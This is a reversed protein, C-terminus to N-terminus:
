KCDIEEQFQKPVSIEQLRKLVKCMDRQLALREEIADVRKPLEKLDKAEAYIGALWFLASAFCIALTYVAKSSLNFRTSETIEM